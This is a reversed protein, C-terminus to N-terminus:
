VVSVAQVAAGLSLSEDPGPAVLLNQVSQGNVTANVEQSSQDFFLSWLVSPRCDTVFFDGDPTFLETCHM